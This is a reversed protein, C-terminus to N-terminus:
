HVQAALSKRLKGNIGALLYNSGDSTVVEHLSSIVGSDIVNSNYKAWGFRKKPKGIEEDLVMNEFITLEDEKLLESATAENLKTFGKLEM